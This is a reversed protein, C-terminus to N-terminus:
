KGESVGMIGKNSKKKILWISHEGKRIRFKREEVETMDLNREELDSIIDEMQDARNGLSELENKMEKKLEGDGFNRNPEKKYNWIKQCIRKNTSKIGLHMSSDKQTYKYIM